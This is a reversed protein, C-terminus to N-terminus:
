GGIGYAKRGQPTLDVIVSDGNTLAGPAIETAEGDSIGPQVAVRRLREGSVIWVGPGTGANEGPPVFNLAAAPVHQVNKTEATLIRVSATMGPKLALDTNAVDVVTGYTLDSSCM